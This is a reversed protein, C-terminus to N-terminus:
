EQATGTWRRKVAAFGHDGAMKLECQLLRGLMAALRGGRPIWMPGPTRGDAAKYEWKEADM